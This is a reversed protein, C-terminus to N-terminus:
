LNTEFLEGLYNKQVESKGLKEIIDAVSCKKLDFCLNHLRPYSLKLPKDNVWWDEWFRTNKGNGIRKKCFQYFCDKVNMLGAWFQL